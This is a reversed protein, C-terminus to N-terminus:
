ATTISFECRFEKAADLRMMGDKEVLQQNSDQPDAIGYWPELCVFDRCDKKTWIGFYPWGACDMTLVRGKQKYSLHIRDIQNNEFVLADKDFLGASLALQRNELKLESTTNLRLGDKLETRNLVDNEFELFYDEFTENPLLPCNFGPHAGVSFYLPSESPNIVHYSTSLKNGQLQYLIRFIFDFPYNMKTQETSRLELKCSEEDQKILKFEMDRAFGHQTLSYKQQKYTFHNDKLKGVIPFLVPAHRPWIEPKAQWLYEIGTASKISSLEAGFANITVTLDKSILKYQM